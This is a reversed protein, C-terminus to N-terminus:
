LTKYIKAEIKSKTIIWTTLDKHKIAFIVALLIITASGCAIFGSNGQIHEMVTGAFFNGIPTSGLALFSYVSMVRGRYENTSNLQFISNATNLFIMNAAGVLGILISSVAINNSFITFVQSLDAVTGSLLLFQKKLGNKSLYALILAAIFSGIGAISLLITYESTGGGLVVKAYVPIIVDYNMAFTCVVATILM